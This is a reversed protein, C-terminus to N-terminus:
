PYQILVIRRTQAILKEHDRDFSFYHVDTYLTGDRDTYDFAGSEGFAEDYHDDLIKAQHEDLKKIYDLTFKLPAKNNVTNFTKGGDAMTNNYTVAKYDPQEPRWVTPIPGGLQPTPFPSIPM